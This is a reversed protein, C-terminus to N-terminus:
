LKKFKKEYKGKSDKIIYLVRISRKILRDAKLVHVHENQLALSVLTLDPVQVYNRCLEKSIVFVTHMFVPTVDCARM